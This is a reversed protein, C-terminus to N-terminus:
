STHSIAANSSRPLRSRLRAPVMAREKAVGGSGRLALVTQPFFPFTLFVDEPARGSAAGENRLKGEQAQM